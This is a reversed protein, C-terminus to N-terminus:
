ERHSCCDYIHHSITSLCISLVTDRLETEGTEEESQLTLDAPLLCLRWCGERREELVSLLCHLLYLLLDLTFYSTFVCVCLATVKGRLSLHSEHTAAPPTLAQLMFHVHLVSATIPARHTFASLLPAVSIQVIVNFNSASNVHHLFIKKFGTHCVDSRVIIIGSQLRTYEDYKGIEIKKRVYYIYHYFLM